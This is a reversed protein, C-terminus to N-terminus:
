EGKEEIVYNFQLVKLNWLTLIQEAMLQGDKEFINLQDRFSKIFQAWHKGKADKLLFYFGADGYKKGASVLHLAGDPMVKPTMLVTANGNPLPFVAKICSAGNPIQCVGYVGSYVVQGSSKIARFWFTYKLKKTGPDVLRIIESQISAANKINKTPINLQDIRNSFLKNLLIGFFKFFPNWNVAFTLEYNSTREYFDIVKKSLQALDKEPLHLESLSPILGTSPLNREVILGEKAALQHIYSEGIGDLLGFPGMLWAEEQVNIKRGRFIVWQQTIWDQLKQMPYAFGM